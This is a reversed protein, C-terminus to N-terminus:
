GCRRPWLWSGKFLHQNGTGQLTSMPVLRQHHLLYVDEVLFRGAGPAAPVGDRSHDRLRQGCGHWQLRTPPTSPEPAGRARWEALATPLTEWTRDSRRRLMQAGDIALWVPVRGEAPSSVADGAVAARWSTPFPLGFM